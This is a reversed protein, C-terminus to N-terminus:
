YRLILRIDYLRPPAMFATEVGSFEATNFSQAARAKNTLNTGGVRVEWVGNRAQLSAFANLYVTEPVALNPSDTTENAHAGRYAGDFHLTGTLESTLPKKYTAGLFGTWKPSKVLRRDSVDGLVGGVLAEYENYKADLYGATGDITLGELPRLSMSVEVGQIRASAANTFLTVFAGTDPDQGFGNLQIDKFDSYFYSAAFSLKNDFRQMKIGGEYSWVTEPRFPVFAESSAARGPFGGSKFGRAASAYVLTKDDIQHSLVARPTLSDWSEVGQLTEGPFGVGTLFPPTDYSVSLNPDFFFENRRLMEKEEYTYRLGLELSTASSIPVTVDAFAAYSDTSQRSEGLGSSPIGFSIIPVTVFGLDLPASADDFGALVTILAASANWV